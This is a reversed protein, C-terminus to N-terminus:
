SNLDFLKIEVCGCAPVPLTSTLAQAKLSCRMALLMFDDLQFDFDFNVM